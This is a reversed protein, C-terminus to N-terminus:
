LSSNSARRKQFKRSIKFSEGISQEKREHISASHKKLKGKPASTNIFSECKFPKKGEHDSSGHQKMDCLTSSNVDSPWPHLTHGNLPCPATAPTSKSPTNNAM